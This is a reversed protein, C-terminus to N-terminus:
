EVFEWSSPVIDPPYVTGDVLCIYHHGDTYAMKMGRMWADHAGTPQIWEPWEETSTRVWLAPVVDPTWDAQSTHAQVCRYLLGKYQRRDAPIGKEKDEAQYRVGVKWEEFLTTVTEAEDDDLYSVAVDVMIHNYDKAPAVMLGTFQVGDARTWTEGEPIFRYGKIYEDPQGDFVDTQVERMTGDNSLHCIFESDLYITKM